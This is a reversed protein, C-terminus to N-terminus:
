NIISDVLFQAANKLLIRILKMGETLLRKDTSQLDCELIALVVNRSNPCTEFVKSLLKSAKTYYEADM